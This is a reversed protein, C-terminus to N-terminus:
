AYARPQPSWDEKGCQLFSQRPSGGGTWGRREVPRLTAMSARSFSCTAREPPGCGRPCGTERSWGRTAPVSARLECPVGTTRPPSADSKKGCALELGDAALEEDVCQIDLLYTTESELKKWTTVYRHFFQTELILFYKEKNTANDYGRNKHTRGKGVNLDWPLLGRFVSASYFHASRSFGWAGTAVTSKGELTIL